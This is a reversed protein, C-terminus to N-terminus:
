EYARLECLVGQARGISFRKQIAKGEFCSQIKKIKAIEANEIRGGIEFKWSAKANWYIANLWYYTSADIGQIMRIPALGPCANFDRM